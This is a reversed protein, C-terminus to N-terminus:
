GEMEEKKLEWDKVRVDMELVKHDMGICGERIRGEMEVGVTGFGVDIMSDKEKGREGVRTVVGVKTGVRFGWESDDMWEEIIRGGRDGRM